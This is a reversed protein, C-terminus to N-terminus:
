VYPPGAACILGQQVYAPGAACICARSCMHLGQQVYAPGAAYMCAYLGLVVPQSFVWGCGIPQSFCSHRGCQTVARPQGQGPEGTRAQGHPETTQALIHVPPNENSIVKPEPNPRAIKQDGRQTEEVLDSALTLMALLRVQDWLGPPITGPVM